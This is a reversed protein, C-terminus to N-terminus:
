KNGIPIAKQLEGYVLIRLDGRKYESTDRLPTCSVLIVRAKDTHERMKNWLETPKIDTSKVMKYVYATDRTTIRIEDGPKVKHIENLYRGTRYGRHGFLVTNGIEGIRATAEHHGVAIRLSYLTAEDAVPMSFGISPIDLRAYTNVKVYTKDNSDTEQPASFDEWAEGSVVYQDPSFTVEIENVPALELPDEEPVKGMEELVEDIKGDQLYNQWYPRILLYLGAVLLVVALVTLFTNIKNKM